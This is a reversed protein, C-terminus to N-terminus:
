DFNIIENYRFCKLEHDNVVGAAQLFSYMTTPGLRKFGLHKFKNVYPMVFKSVDLDEGSKRFHNLPQQNTNSWLLGDLTIGQEALGVLGTANDITAQVKARNRIISADHILQEFQQEGYNSVISVDFNAFARRLADRKKLVTLWSLGAQFEELSMLEFLKQNDHEPVGWEHDHYSMLRPDKQAWECRYVM